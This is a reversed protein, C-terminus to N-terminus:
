EPRLKGTGDCAQCAHVQGSCMPCTVNKRGWCTWCTTRGTGKCWGCDRLGTGNCRSCTVKGSGGCRGCAGGEGSGGCEGCSEGRSVRETFPVTEYHRNYIPQGASDFGINDIVLKRRTGEVTEWVTVWRRGHCTPCRLHGTGSCNWCSVQTPCSVKGKECWSCPPGGTGECKPCPVELKDECKPCHARKFGKCYPCVIDQSILRSLKRGWESSALTLVLWPPDMRAPVTGRAELGTSYEGVSTKIPFDKGVEVFVGDKSSFGVATEVFRFKYGIKMERENVLADNDMLTLKFELTVPADIKARASVELSVNPDMFVTAANAAVALLTRKGEITLATLGKAPGLVATAKVNVEIKARTPDVKLSPLLVNEYTPLRYAEPTLMEVIKAVPVLSLTVFHDPNDVPPVITKTHALRVLEPPLKAHEELMARSTELFQKNM